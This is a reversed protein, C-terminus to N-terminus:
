YVATAVLTLPTKPFLKNRKSFRVSINNSDNGIGNTIGNDNSNEIGNSIGNDNSNGIGNSIGIGNRADNGNGNGNHNDDNIISNIMSRKYITVIINFSINIFFNYM